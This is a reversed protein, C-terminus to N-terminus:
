ATNGPLIAFTSLAESAERNAAKKTEPLHATWLMGGDSNAIGIERGGPSSFGQRMPATLRTIDRGNRGAAIEFSVPM